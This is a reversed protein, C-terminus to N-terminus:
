RRRLMVPVDSDSLQKREGKGFRITKAAGDIAKTKLPANYGSVRNLSFFIFEDNNVGEMVGDFYNNDLSFGSYKSNGNADLLFRYGSETYEVYVNGTRYDVYWKFRLTQQNGQGDYDTEYGTGNIADSRYQVFTFDADCRTQEREGDENYYENIITGEWTGSLTQALDLAHDTADYYPKDYWDYGDYWDEECSTFTFPLAAMVLLTLYTSLRKM